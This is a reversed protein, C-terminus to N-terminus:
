RGGLLSVGLLARRKLWPSPRFRPDASFDLMAELMGLLRRAGISDGLSLPGFPYGLQLRAARDIDAAAVDRQQALNCASNVMVAVIRQAILGASDCISTVSTGDSGFLGYAAAHAAPTTLPTTMLTRRRDLGFLCDLAVTRKPDLGQTACLTSADQGLPTVVILADPAPRQGADVAIGADAVLRRVAAAWEPIAQAVWVRSPRANEGHPKALPRSREERLSREARRAGILSARLAAGPDDRPDALAPHGPLVDLNVRDLLLEFPGLAFGAADRMVNDIDRVTAVGEALLHLAEAFASRAVSEIGSTDGIAATERLDLNMALNKM